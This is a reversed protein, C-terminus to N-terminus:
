FDFERKVVYCFFVVYYRGYFDRWIVDIIGDFIGLGFSWSLDGDGDVIFLFIGVVFFDM